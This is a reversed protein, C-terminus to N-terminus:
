EVAPTFFKFKREIKSLRENEEDDVLIEASIEEKLQGNKDYLRYFHKSSDLFDKDDYIAFCFYSEFEGVYNFNHEGLETSINNM